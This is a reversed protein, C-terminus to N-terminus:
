RLRCQYCAVKKKGPRDIILKPDVDAINIVTRKGEKPVKPVEPENSVKKNEPKDSVKQESDSHDPQALFWEYVDDEGDLPLTM